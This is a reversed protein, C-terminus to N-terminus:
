LDMFFLLQFDVSVKIFEGGAVVHHGCHAGKVPHMEPMAFNQIIYPFDRLFSTSLAKDDGERGVGLLYQMGLLLEEGDVCQFLIGSENLLRSYIGQQDEGERRCKRLEGESLEKLQKGFLCPHFHDDHPGVVAEPVVPLPIAFGHLLDAFLVPDAGDCNRFEHQFVATDSGGLYAFVNFVFFKCFCFGQQPVAVFFNFLGDGM